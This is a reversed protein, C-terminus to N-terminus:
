EKEFIQCFLFYNLEHQFLSPIIICLNMKLYNDIHLNLILKLMHGYGM